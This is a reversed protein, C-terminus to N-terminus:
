EESGLVLRVFRGIEIKEGFAAVAEDIIDKVKKKEDRVFPQELLCVEEYYKQLQGEAIRDLLEEPKGEEKLRDRAIEKEKRLADQPVDEKSVFLPAAAAIHLAIDHALKVFKENRAVFDTESLLEVLVGIQGHHIYSEIHGNLTERDARKKAKLIGKKRLYEVAKDSDGDSEELAEKCASIGTGTKKRLTKIMELTIKAM